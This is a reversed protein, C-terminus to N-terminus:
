QVLEEFVVRHREIWPQLDFKTAARARAAQSFAERKEAIRIVAEAMVDPDPPVIREWSLESVIGIGAESGVLEPVGGSQSYVVPLGCAMAELVVGPCSDNYQTHLLLHARRYMAPADAQSYPGLYTVQQGINLSAALVEAQRRAKTESPMWALRGAVLLRVDPRRQAIKALVQLATTLRYYQAQTGALLLILHDPDPDTAAPTFFRTDVPNYLVESSGSRPGLFQEASRQCFKSQYFVHDAEAHLRAMPANRAKWGPGHWAPYAVGNQNWVVRVGKKRALWAMQPAGYPMRSSVMYLINFRQPSNPFACQMSQFKVMGGSLESEQGPIRGHGYFVRVDRRSPRNWSLIALCRPLAWLPGLRHVLHSRVSGPLLRSRYPERSSSRHLTRKLAQLALRVQYGASWLGVAAQIIGRRLSMAFGSQRLEPTLRQMMALGEPVSDTVTWSYQYARAIAECLGAVGQARGRIDHLLIHGDKALLGHQVIALLERPYFPKYHDILILDFRSSRHRYLYHCADEQLFEFGSKVGQSRLYAALVDGNVANDYSLSDIGVYSFEEHMGLILPVAFGGAQYGIELVRPTPLGQLLRLAYDELDPHEVGVHWKSSPYGLSRYYEALPLKM